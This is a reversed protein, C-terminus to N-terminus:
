LNKKRRCSVWKKAFPFFGIDGRRFAALLEMRYDARPLDDVVCLEMWRFFRRVTKDRIDEVLRREMKDTAVLSEALAKWLPRAKRVAALKQRVWYPDRVSTTNGGDARWHMLVESSNAIGKVALRAWTLWDCGGWAAPLNVFGGIARLASTRCMVSQAIANRSWCVVAHLWEIQTEVAKAPPAAVIVGQGGIFDHRADFIDLRPYREALAVMKELYDPEYLDDDSGLVFLEGRAKDLTKMWNDVFNPATSCENRAYAFRPDDGVTAEFIGRMDDPSCDDQVIVEFDAFTQRKWCLLAEHFFRGKFAPIGISVRPKTM